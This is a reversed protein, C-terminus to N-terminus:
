IFEVTVAVFVAIVIFVVVVAASKLIWGERELLLEQTSMPM